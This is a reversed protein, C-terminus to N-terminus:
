WLCLNGQGSHGRRLSKRCGANNQRKMIPRILFLFGDDKPVCLFHTQLFRFFLKLM